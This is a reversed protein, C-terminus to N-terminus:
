MLTLEISVNETKTLTGAKLASDGNGSTDDNVHTAFRAKDTMPTILAGM